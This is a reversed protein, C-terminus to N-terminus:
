RIRCIASRAMLRSCWRREAVPAWLDSDTIFSLTGTKHGNRLHARIDGMAWGGVMMLSVRVCSARPRPNKRLSPARNRRLRPDAYPAAKRISNRPEIEVDRDAARIFIQWPRNRLQLDDDSM